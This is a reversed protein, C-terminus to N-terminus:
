PSRKAKWHVRGHTSWDPRPEFGPPPPSYFNAVDVFYGRARGGSLLRGKVEYFSSGAVSADTFERHFIRATQFGFRFAPVSNRGTTGDEFFILVNAYEFAAYDPKGQKGKRVDFSVMASPDGVVTGSYHTKTAGAAGGPFAALLLPVFVFPGIAAVHRRSASHIM